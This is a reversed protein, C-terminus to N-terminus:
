CPASGIFRNSGFLTLKLAWAGPSLSLAEASAFPCRAASRISRRFFPSMAASASVSRASVPQSGSGSRVQLPPTEFVGEAESGPSAVSVASTPTSAAASPCSVTMPSVSSCVSSADAAASAGRSRPRTAAAVFVGNPGGAVAPKRKTESSLICFFGGFQRVAEHALGLRHATVVEGIAAAFPAVPQHAIQAVCRAAQRENPSPNASPVPRCISRHPASALM